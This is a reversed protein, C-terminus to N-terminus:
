IGNYSWFTYTFYFWLTNYGKHISSTHNVLFSFTNYRVHDRVTNILVYTLMHIPKKYVRDTASFIGRIEIFHNWFSRFQNTKKKNKYMPRGILSFHTGTAYKNKEFESSNRTSYRIYRVWPSVRKWMTQM